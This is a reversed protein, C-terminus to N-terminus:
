YVGPYLGQEIPSRDIRVRQKAKKNRIGDAENPAIATTGEYPDTLGHTHRVRPGRLYKTGCIKWGRNSGARVKEGRVSKLERLLGAHRGM